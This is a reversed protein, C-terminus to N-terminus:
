RMSRARLVFARVQAQPLPDYAEPRAAPPTDPPVAPGLFLLAALLAGACLAAAVLRAFTDAARAPDV